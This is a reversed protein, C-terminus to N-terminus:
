TIRKPTGCKTDNQFGGNILMLSFFRTPNPIM